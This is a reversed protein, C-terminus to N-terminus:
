VQDPGEPTEKWFLKSVGWLLLGLLTFPLLVLACIALVVSPFISPPRDEVPQHNRTHEFTMM